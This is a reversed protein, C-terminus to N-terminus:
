DWMVPTSVIPRGNDYPLEVGESTVLFKSITNNNMDRIPFKFHIEIFHVNINEVYDIEIISIFSNIMSKKREDDFHITKNFELSFEEFYDTPYESKANQQIKGELEKIEKEKIDIEDEIQSNKNYLSDKGLVGDTYLDLLRSKKNQLETLMRKASKINKKFDEIDTNKKIYKKYARHTGQADQLIHLLSDWVLTNLKDLNINKMGCFRPYPDPRKSLCQYLRMGRSPKILGHLNEGCRNCKIKGRLLYFYKTNNRGSSNANNKFNQQINDWENENIIQPVDIEFNKFIYIGKYVPNKLIKHITGGKWILEERKKHVLKGTKNDKVHIGDKYTSYGKTKIQMDNLYAAIKNAGKGALSQEVMKLYTKQEEINIILKRDKDVDYGFPPTGGHFRGKEVSKDMGRICRVSRISNERSSILSQIGSMFADDYNNLDFTGNMTHLAVNKNQFVYRLYSATIDNRSLRDWEVTFIYNVDGLLCLDILKSLEPRDSINNSGASKGKEEFVKYNYNLSNAKIIGADRQAELSHGRLVQKSTSVRTYIFLTEKKNKTM